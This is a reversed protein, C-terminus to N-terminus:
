NWGGSISIFGDSRRTISLRIEAQECPGSFIAIGAPMGSRLYPRIAVAPISIELSPLGQITRESDAALFVSREFIWLEYRMRPDEFSAVTLPKGDPLLDDSLKASLLRMIEERDWTM